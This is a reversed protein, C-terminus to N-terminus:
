VWAKAEPRKPRAQLFINAKCTLRCVKQTTEIGFIHLSSATAAAMVTMNYASFFHQQNERKNTSGTKFSAHGSTGQMACLRM